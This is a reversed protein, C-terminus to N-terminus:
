PAHVYKKVVGNDRLLEDLAERASMGGAMRAAIAGSVTGAAFSTGSWTASGNFDKQILEGTDTHVAVPGHLYAGRVHDGLANCTIWPARPTFDALQEPGSLPAPETLAGVAVVTPLAAPWTASRSTLGNDWGVRLGHNGAAAVVLVGPKMREIARSLVLPPEGDPTYSGFSLNLVQVQEALSLMALAIDWTSAHGTVPDLVGRVIVEARPAQELIKSTVFTGHGARPPTATLLLLPDPEPLALPPDAHIVHRTTLESDQDFPTDILGVTIGGGADGAIPPLAQDLKNPEDLQMPKSTGFVEALAPVTMPKSTGTGIVGNVTRNKGMIPVWGGYRGGFRRRLEVLLADLEVVREPLTLLALGLGTDTKVGPAPEIKCDQLEATVLDLHELDVVLENPDDTESANTM